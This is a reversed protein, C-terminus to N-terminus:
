GPIIFRFTSGTGEGKSEVWIKGGHLEVLRKTLFLGSGIGQYRRSASGDVQEFLKFIREQDELAIGIGTDSTSFEVCKKTKKNTIEHGEIRDVVIWLDEPDERRLGPRVICDVTRARLCVEGGSPTFKVANSLLNYIIQKLKRQDAKITEPVDDTDISVKIGHKVAKEKIMVLSRSLLDKLDIQSRQLELEGAELRSVDIIDDIVSLLHKSSQLVHNLCEEQ